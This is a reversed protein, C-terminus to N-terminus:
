KIEEINTNDIVENFSTHVVGYENMEFNGYIVYTNPNSYVISAIHQKRIKHGDYEEDIFDYTGDDYLIEYSDDSPDFWEYEFSDVYDSLFGLLHKRSDMECVIKCDMDKILFTRDTRKTM